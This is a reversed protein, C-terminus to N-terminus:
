AVRRSSPPLSPLSIHLNDLPIEDLSISFRRVPIRRLRAFHQLAELSEGALNADAIVVETFPFRCYIEEAQDPQGLVRWGEVLKGQRFRDADAFGVLRAGRPRSQLVFNAAMAGVVGSGVVLVRDAAAAFGNIFKRLVFFSSRTAVLLNGVLMAYIVAISGSPRIPLFHSGIGIFVGALAGGCVFRMVDALAFQRWIGRYIGSLLLAPYTLLVVWPLGYSISNLVQDNLNFDLRLAVAGCYAASILVLDIGAEALRGRHSLSLLLPRRKQPSGVPQMAGSELRLDVAFLAIVGVTLVIFPLAVILDEYALRSSEVACAGAAIAMSWATGAVRPVPLGLALLSDHMHDLGRWAIAKGATTRTVMVITTDLLPVLMVLMPFLWMTLRSNTALCGGELALVGLLYGLPLAGADGMIISAPPFNYVVFGALSGCIVLCPVAVNQALHAVGVLAIAGAGVIGV